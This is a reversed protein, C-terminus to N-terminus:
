SRVAAAQAAAQAAVGDRSPWQTLIFNIFNAKNSAKHRKQALDAM